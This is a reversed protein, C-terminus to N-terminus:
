FNPRLVVLGSNLDSVYLRGAHLQPAWTCTANSGGGFACGGGGNYQSHAIERGQLDLRGLLEGSVDWAFVGNGYWATYLIQRAEDLWFNHPSDGFVQITAVDRPHSLDSVDIVRVIGAGLTQASFEDGVFVYEGAPWYWANHVSYTSYSIRGIEVPSGPSGNAVGNGVDVIILGDTWNSLFALGDRVYVDHLAPAPGLGFNQQAVIQPNHPDAVDIVRFSNTQSDSIYVHGDEIWVNHVGPELLSTFRTIITPHTPVSMDLLTIGNPNSGEHTLVALSGDSAIKVDNVTGASVVVSDVLLPANPSSIDWVKVVNGFNTQGTVTTQSGVTRGGWTGTLLVNGHAWLDSTFREGVVGQGAVSFSGAPAGRPTITVQATDSAGGASVTVEVSGAVYGVFKGEATLLGANLPSVSWDLSAGAIVAGASDRAEATLQQVEGQRASAPASTIAVSAVPTPPGPTATVRFSVSLSTVAVGDLAAFLTASYSDEVLDGAQVALTISRVAGPNLTPVSAPVVTLRSGVQDLGGGNRVPSPVLDIPGVAVTGTNQLEVVAERGAGLAVANPTFELREAAPDPGTPASDSCALALTAPLLVSINFIQRSFRM